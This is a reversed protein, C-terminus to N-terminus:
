DKKNFVQSEPFPFIDETSSRVYDPKVEDATISTDNNMNYTTTISNKDDSSKYQNPLRNYNAEFWVKIPDTLPDYPKPSTTNPDWPNKPPCINPISIPAKEERPLLMPEPEKKQNEIIAKLLIIADPGSILQNDILYSLILEPETFNKKKDVIPQIPM